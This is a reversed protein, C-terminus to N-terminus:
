SIHSLQIYQTLSNPLLLLKQNNLLRYFINEEAFHKTFQSFSDEM